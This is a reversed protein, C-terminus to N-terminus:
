SKVMEYVLDRIRPHIVHYNDSFGLVHEAYFVSLELDTDILVYAGAAGDWGFEGVSSKSKSGDVLVRVGLGYEYGFRNIMAFDKQIQGQTTYPKQFLAVTEPKLIREGNAGAGGCALADAFVSYADVSAILGAGGSEYCKTFCYTDRDAPSAAVFPPKDDTATYIDCIRASVDHNEWRFYFDRIGLPEFIYMNLYESFRMGSIKEIVAALVDHSLSYNWRSGPEFLLPTKALAEIVEQTSARGRSERVANEINPDKTDYSFGATMTMLDIIRIPTKAPHTKANGVVNGYSVLDFDDAVSVKEYAPIYMSLPDNLHCKGSEILQLMATMTILKTASYLRFLHERQLPIRRDLDGYGFAHRYIEEHHQMVKLDGMPMGYIDQLSDLYETLKTANM